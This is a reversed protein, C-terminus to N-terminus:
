GDDCAALEEACFDMIPFTWGIMTVDATEAPPDINCEGMDQAFSPAVLLTMLM